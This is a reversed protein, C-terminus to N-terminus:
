LTKLSKVTHLDTSVLAQLSLRELLRWIMNVVSLGKKREKNRILYAKWNGSEM